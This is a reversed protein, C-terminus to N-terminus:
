GLARVEEAIEPYWDPDIDSFSGGGSYRDVLERAAKQRGSAALAALMGRVEEKSLVPEEPKGPAKPAQRKRPAKQPAPAAAEAPEEKPEPHEEGGLTERLQVVTKRLAEGAATLHEAVTTMEDLVTALDNMKSM